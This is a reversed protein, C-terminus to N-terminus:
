VRGLMMMEMIYRDSQIAERNLVVDNMVSAMASIALHSIALLIRSAAFDNRKEENEDLM